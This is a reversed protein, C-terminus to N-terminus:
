YCSSPLNKDRIQEHPKLLMGCFMQMCWDTNIREILMEDSLGTYHKLLLLAIGGKLDFWPECGKGSLGFRPSPIHKALREFPIAVYLQGLDSQLFRQHLLQEHSFLLNTM